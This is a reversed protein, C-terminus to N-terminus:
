SSYFVRICKRVIEWIIALMAILYLTAFFAAWTATTMGIQLENPYFAFRRPVSAAGAIYFMLVFGFGGILM